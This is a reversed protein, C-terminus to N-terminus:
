EPQAELVIEADLDLFATKTDLVMKFPGRVTRSRVSWSVEKHTPTDVAIAYQADGGKSRERLTFSKIRYGPPADYKFVNSKSDDDGVHISVVKLTVPAAIDRKLANIDSKTEPNTASRSLSELRGLLEALQKDRRKDLEIQERTKKEDFARREGDTKEAVIEARATSREKLIGAGLGLTLLLALVGSVADRDKRFLGILAVLYAVALGIIAEAM